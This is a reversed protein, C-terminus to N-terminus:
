GGGSGGDDDAAAAADDDDDDVHRVPGSTQNVFHTAPFSGNISYQFMAEGKWTSGPYCYARRVGMLGASICMHLRNTYVTDYAAM